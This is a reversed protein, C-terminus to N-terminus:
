PCKRTFTASMGELSVESWESGQTHLRACALHVRNSKKIRSNYTGCRRTLKFQQLTTTRLKEFWVHVWFAYGSNDGRRLILSIADMSRGVVSVFYAYEAGLDKRELSSGGNPFWSAYWCTSNSLRNSASLTKSVLENWLCLMNKHLLEIKM